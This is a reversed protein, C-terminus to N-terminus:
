VAFRQNPWPHQIRPQPLSQAVLKTMDSWKMRDKQGRRRLTRRWLDTVHSHFAELSGLNSPVAHYAFYGTVVQGLWSDQEAVRLHMKRRLADKIERPKAKLRDRRSKRKV